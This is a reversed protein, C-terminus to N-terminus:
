MHVLVESVIYACLSCRTSVSIGERIISIVCYDSHHHKCFVLGSLFYEVTQSPLLFIVINIQSVILRDSLM